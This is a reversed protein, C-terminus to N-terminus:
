SCVRPNRGHGGHEITFGLCSRGPWGLLRLGMHGPVHAVLGGLVLWLATKERHDAQLLFGLLGNISHPLLVFSLVVGLRGSAAFHPGFMIPLFWGSAAAVGLVLPTEIVLLFRLTLRVLSASEKRDQALKRTLVPFMVAVLSEPLLFTLLVLRYAAGYLGAAEEGALSTIIIADVRLFMIAAVFMLGFTPIGHALARVRKLDLVPKGRGLHDRLFIAAVTLGVLRSGTFALLLAVLGHGSVLLYASLALRFSCEVLSPMWLARSRGHALFVGEASQIVVSFPLSAGMVISGTVVLPSYNLGLSVLPMALWAVLSAPLALAMMAGFWRSAAEQEGSIERTLLPVLGLVATAQFIFLMNVLLVYAGLDALPLFRAALFFIAFTLLPQGYRAVLLSLGSKLVRRSTSPPTM